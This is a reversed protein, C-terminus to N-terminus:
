SRKKAVSPAKKTKRAAPKRPAASSKVTKRKAETKPRSQRNKSVLAFEIRRADLDCRAVKVTLEDGLRYRLGSDEGYIENSKDDFVFYDDGLGSIHIAGEVYLDELTVFIAFPSVGSIVGKFVQGLKKQMYNCKLWVMVDYSAEDARREHASCLLGLKEWM